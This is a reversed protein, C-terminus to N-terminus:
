SVGRGRSARRWGGGRQGGRMGGRKAVYPNILAGGPTVYEPWKETIVGAWAKTSADWSKRDAPLSWAGPGCSHPRQSMCFRQVLDVDFGERVFMM